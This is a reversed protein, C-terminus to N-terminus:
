HSAHPSETTQEKTAQLYNYCDYLATTLVIFLVCIIALCVHVMSNNQQSPEKCEYKARFDTKRAEEPKYVM